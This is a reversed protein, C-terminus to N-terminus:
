PTVQKSEIFSYINNSYQLAVYQLPSWHSHIEHMLDTTCPILQLSEELWDYHSCVYLVGTQGQAKLLVQDIRERFQHRNESAFKEDLEAHTQLPINLGEALAQFSQQARLRPSVWLQDPRPLESNQVKKLLATAQQMGLASLQPDPHFLSAKEAHRFLYLKM